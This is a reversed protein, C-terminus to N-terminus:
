RQSGLACQRGSRHGHFQYGPPGSQSHRSGHHALGSRDCACGTRGIKPALTKEILQATAVDAYSYGIGTKGGAQIRVLVLTTADWKLTGDSEPSRTPVTFASVHVKEIKLQDPM